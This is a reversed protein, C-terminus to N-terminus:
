ENLPFYQVSLKIKGRSTNYYKLPFWGEMKDGKVLEDCSIKVAGVHESSIFDKDKVNILLNKAEHDVEIVFNEKWEPNLSNNIVKTKFIKDDGLKGTVYPDSADGRGCCSTETNTLNEAQDIFVELRGRLYSMKSKVPKRAYRYKISFQM